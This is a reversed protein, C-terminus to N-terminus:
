RTFTVASTQHTHTLQISRPNESMLREITSLLEGASTNRPLVSDAKMERAKKIQISNDALALFHIESERDRINYFTKTRDLRIGEMDALLLAPTFPYNSQDYVLDMSGVLFLKLQPLTKLIAALSERFNGPKAIILISYQSEM